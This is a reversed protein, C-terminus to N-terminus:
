LEVPKENLLIKSDTIKYGIYNADGTKADTVGTGNPSAYVNSGSPLTHTSGIPTTTYSYVTSDGAYFGLGDRRLGLSLASDGVTFNQIATASLTSFDRDTSMSFRSVTTSNAGIVEGPDETFIFQSYNTFVTARNQYIVRGINNPRPLKYLYLRDNTSEYIMLYNGCPSVNFTEIVHNFKCAAVKTRGYMEYPSRLQYQVMVGTTDCVYFQMGDYSFGIGQVSAGTVGQDTITFATETFELVPSTAVFPASLRFMRLANSTSRDVIFAHLGDGSLVFNSRAGSALLGSSGLAASTLDPVQATKQLSTTDPYTITSGNFKTTSKVTIGQGTTVTAESIGFVPKSGNFLEFEGDDSISVPEGIDINEAVNLTIPTSGGSGSGGALLSVVSDTVM